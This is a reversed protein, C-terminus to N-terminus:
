VPKAVGMKPPPFQIPLSRQGTMRRHDPYVPVRERHFVLVRGEGFIGYAILGVMRMEFGDWFRPAKFGGIAGQLALPHRERRFRTAARWVDGQSREEGFVGSFSRGIWNDERKQASYSGGRGAECALLKTSSSTEPLLVLSVWRRVWLVLGGVDARGTMSKDM